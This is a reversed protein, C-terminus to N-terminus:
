KSPMLCEPEVTWAACGNGDRLQSYLYSFIKMLKNNCWFDFLHSCFIRQLCPQAITLLFITLPTSTPKLNVLNLKKSSCIVNHWLILFSLNSAVYLTPQLRLSLFEHTIEHAIEHIYPLLSKVSLITKKRPLQFIEHSRMLLATLFM